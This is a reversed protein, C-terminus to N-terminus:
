IFLYLSSSIDPFRCNKKEIDLPIQAYWSGVPRNYKIKLAANSEFTFTSKIKFVSISGVVVEKFETNRVAIVIGM